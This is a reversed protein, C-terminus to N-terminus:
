LIFPKWDCSIKLVTLTKMDKDAMDRHGSSGLSHEQPEENLDDSVRAGKMEDVNSEWFNVRVKRKNVVEVKASTSGM